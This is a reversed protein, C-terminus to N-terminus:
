MFRTLLHGDCDNCRRIMKESMSATREMSRGCRSLKSLPCVMRLHALTEISKQHSVTLTNKSVVTLYHQKSM